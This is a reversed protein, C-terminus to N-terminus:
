LLQSVILAFQREIIELIQLSLSPSAKEPSWFDWPFSPPLSVSSRSLHSPHTPILLPNWILGFFPVLGDASCLCNQRSVGKLPVFCRGAASPPEPPVRLHSSGDSGNSFSAFVRHAVSLGLSVARQLLGCSSWRLADGRLSCALVDKHGGLFLNREKLSKLAHSVNAPLNTLELLLELTVWAQASVLNLTCALCFPVWLPLIHVCM